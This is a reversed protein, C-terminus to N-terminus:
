DKIIARIPFKQNEFIKSYHELDSYTKDYQEFTRNYGLSGVEKLGEEIELEGIKEFKDKIKILDKHEIADISFGFLFNPSGGVYDWIKKVGNQMAKTENRAFGSQITNGLIESNMIDDMTPKKNSNYTIPVLCYNCNGRYQDIKVCCTVAYSENSLQFALVSNESFIFRTIKRYKKRKRIKENSKEIKNLFRKLALKRAKGEKESYMSWEKVGVGKDIIQKIYNLRESTMLGIEWYALGCSTVYIENDFDDIKEKKLPFEQIIFDLDAGDDYLDMIGWYTDHATDGDIIKTGDVAM